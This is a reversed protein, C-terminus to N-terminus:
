QSTCSMQSGIFRCNTTTPRQPLPVQYASPQPQNLLMQIAAQRRAADQQDARAQLQQRVAAFQRDAQAGIEARRRAYEGFTISGNYLEATASLFASFVANGIAELDPHAYAARWAAGVNLCAQRDEVWKRIQPKEADSIRSTNALMEFTQEKIVRAAVKASLGQDEFHLANICADTPNPLPAVAQRQPQQVCGALVAACLASAIRM